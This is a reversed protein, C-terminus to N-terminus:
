KAVSGPVDGRSTGSTFRNPSLDTRIQEFGPVDSLGLISEVALRAIAPAAQIGYGGQGAIWFIGEQQSDFGVIPDRDASFTRLGAWSDYYSRLELTTAANIRAIALAIDKRDPVPETAGHPSEDAPSILLAQGYPRFYCTEEVDAVLPWSEPVRKGVIAVTRKKPELGLAMAGLREAIDDCWAGAANLVIPTSLHGRNTELLWLGARFRGVILREDPRVSGGNEIFRHLYHSHLLEVDVDAADIEVAAGIAHDRRLAGCLEIAEEPGISELLASGEIMSKLLDAQQEGAYRLFPRRTLFQVGTDDSAADIMQKSAVTLKQIASSGYSSLVGAVSKGTAHGLMHAEQELLIVKGHVALAAAATVGAMGGGVVVFDATDM